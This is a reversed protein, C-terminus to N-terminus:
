TGYEIVRSKMGSNGPLFLLDNAIKVRRNKIDSSEFINRLVTRPSKWYEVFMMAYIGSDVSNELPQRPVDPYLIEYEDFGMDVLRDRVIEHFEHDKHYLPDLFIFKHDKIDVVFVFWHESFLIPFYLNNSNNIPRNRSSRKFSRALVDQNAEDVDKLLNEGINAFFYYSKSVDSSANPKIYMSYCFASIVLM